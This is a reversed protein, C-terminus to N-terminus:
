ATPWRPHDKLSATGERTIIVHDLLPIEMLKGIQSIRKTLAWDSDSPSLSGGPHNHAMIMTSAKHLLAREIVKRPYVVCQNSTGEAVVETGLVHNGNDLYLMATYEYPKPGLQFRLYEEVDQRRSIYHQRDIGERLSQTMVDKMLSFLLATRRGMGPTEALQDFPAHLVASLSGFRALLARAIPKVDKRPIAFTLILEIVEHGALGSLGAREYRDLLRGRHGAPSEAISDSM